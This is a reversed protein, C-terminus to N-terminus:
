GTAREIGEQVLRAQDVPDHGMSAEAWGEVLVAPPDARPPCHSSLVCHAVKHRDMPDLGDTEAM